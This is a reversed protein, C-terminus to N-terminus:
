LHKWGLGRVIRNTQSLSVGYKMAIAPQSLKLVNRDHRMARVIQETLKAMGHKEGPNWGGAHAQRGKACKDDVNDQCSGLFLHDPRVCPPNDCAHLVWLGDPIPGVNLEYSLRHAPVHIREPYGVSLSGYGQGTRAGIWLWCGDESKQVYKWFKMETTQGRRNHGSKFRRGKACEAGCGCSCLM